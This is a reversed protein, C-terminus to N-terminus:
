KGIADHIAAHTNIIQFKRNATLTITNNSLLTIENKNKCMRLERDKVMNWTVAREYKPQHQETM